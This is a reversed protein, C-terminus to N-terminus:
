IRDNRRLTLSSLNALSLLICKVFRVKELLTANSIIAYRFNALAVRIKQTM